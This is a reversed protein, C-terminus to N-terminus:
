LNNIWPGKPPLAAEGQNCHASPVQCAQPITRPARGKLTDRSWERKRRWRSRERKREWTRGLPRLGLLNCEWSSLWGKWTAMVLCLYNWLPGSFDLIRWPEFSHSQLYCRLTTLSFPINPPCLTFNNGTGGGMVCGCIWRRPIRTLHALPIVDEQWM